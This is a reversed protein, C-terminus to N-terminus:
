HVFIRDLSLMTGSNINMNKITDVFEFVDKVRHKVSERHLLELLEMWFEQNM